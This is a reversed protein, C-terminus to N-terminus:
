TREHVLVGCIEIVAVGDVLTYPKPPEWTADGPYLAIPEAQLMQLILTEHSPLLALPADVFRHLPALVARGHPLAHARHIRPIM